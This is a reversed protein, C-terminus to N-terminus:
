KKRRRPKRRFGGTAHYLRVQKATWLRGSPSRYRGKGVKRFPM